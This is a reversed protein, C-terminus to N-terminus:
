LSRLVTLIREFDKTIGHLQREAQQISFQKSAPKVNNLQAPLNAMSRQLDQLLSKIRQLQERTSCRWIGEKENCWYYEISQQLLEQIEVLPKQMLFIHRLLASQNHHLLRQGLEVTHRIVSPMQQVINVCLEGIHQRSARPNVSKKEKTIIFPNDAIIPWCFLLLTTIVIHNM